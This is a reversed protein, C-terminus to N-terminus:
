SSAVAERLRIAQRGIDLAHRMATDALDFRHGGSLCDSSFVIEPPHADGRLRHVEVAATYGGRPADFVGAYIRFDGVEQQQLDM